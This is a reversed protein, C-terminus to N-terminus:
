VRKGADLGQLHQRLRELLAALDAELQGVGRVADAMRSSTYRLTTDNDSAKMLGALNQFGPVLVIHQGRDPDAVTAIHRHAAADRFEKLQNFQTRCGKWGIMIKEFEPLLPSNPVHYRRLHALVGDLMKLQTHSSNSAFFIQSSIFLDNIGAAMAFIQCLRGEVFSWRHFLDLIAERLAANEQGLRVTTEMEEPSPPPEPDGKRMIQDPRPTWMKKDVSM